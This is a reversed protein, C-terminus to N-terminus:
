YKIIFSEINLRSKLEKQKTGANDRNPFPGIAVVYLEQEFVTKSFIITEYGLNRLQESHSAANDQDAFANVQIYFSDGSGSARDPAVTVQTRDQTETHTEILSLSGYDIKEKSVITLDYLRQESRFAYETHPYRTIVVKYKEIAQSDQGLMELCFGEKFEVISPLNVIYEQTKMTELTLLAQQYQRNLIYAEAIQLYALERKDHDKTTKIYDQAARIAEPYKELKLYVSSLLFDRQSIMQPKIQLLYQLSQQYDRELMSINALKVLARQGYMIDPAVKVTEELLTLFEEQNLSIKARYLTHGAREIDNVPQNGSLLEEVRSWNGGLYLNEIEHLWHLADQSPLAAQNTIWLAFLM